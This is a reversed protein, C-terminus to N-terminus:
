SIGGGIIRSRQRAYRWPTAGGAVAAISVRSRPYSQGTLARGIAGDGRRYIEMIEAETIERTFSAVEGIEGNWPIQAISDYAGIFAAASARNTTMTKSAVSRGDMYITWLTGSNVVGIFHWLNDSYGTVGFSDGNQSVGIGGSAGAPNGQFISYADGTAGAASFNYLVKSATTTASTRFWATVTRRETAPGIGCNAVVGAGAVSLSWKSRQTGTWASIPLSSFSGHSRRPGRDILRYGTPGLSPTYCHLLGDLLAM